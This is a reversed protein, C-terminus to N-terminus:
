QVADDSGVEVTPLALGPRQSRDQWADAGSAGMWSDVNLAGIACNQIGADIVEWVFFGRRPLSLVCDAERGFDGYRGRRRNLGTYTWICIACCNNPFKRAKPSPVLLVQALASQRRGPPDWQHPTTQAQLDVAGTDKTALADEERNEADPSIKTLMTRDAANYKPLLQAVSLSFPPGGLQSGAGQTM